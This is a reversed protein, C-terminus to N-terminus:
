TARLLAERRDVLDACSQCLEHTTRGFDLRETVSPQALCAECAPRPEPGYTGLTRQSSKFTARVAADIRPFHQQFKELGHKLYYDFGDMIAETDRSALSVLAERNRKLSNVKKALMLTSYLNHLMLLHKAVETSADNQMECLDHVGFWTCVPCSCPNDPWPDRLPLAAFEASGTFSYFRRVGWYLYTSSDLTVRCDTVSSLYAALVFPRIGSLGLFHVSKTSMYEHAIVMGMLQLKWSHRPAFAMGDFEGQQLMTKAWRLMETPKGATKGTRGHAVAALDYDGKRRQLMRRANRTSWRLAHEFEEDSGDEVQFHGFAGEKKHLPPQDLIMCFDGRAAAANYWDTVEDATGNFKGAYLLYGGSDFFVRQSEPVGMLVRAKPHEQNISTRWFMDPSTLVWPHQFLDTPKWWSFSHGLPSRLTSTALTEHDPVPIYNIDKTM